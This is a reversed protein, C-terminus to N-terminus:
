QIEEFNYGIHFLADGHSVVPTNTHGVIYGSKASSIIEEKAVFLDKITGLPEGSEVYDGSKKIWTFIGSASARIWVSKRMLVQKEPVAHEVQDIMGTAELVNFVGNFSPRLVALPASALPLKTLPHLSNHRDNLIRPM